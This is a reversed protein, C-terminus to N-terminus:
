SSGATAAVADIAIVSCYVASAWVNFFLLACSVMKWVIVFLARHVELTRNIFRLPNM